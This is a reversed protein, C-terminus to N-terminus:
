RPTTATIAARLLRYQEGAEQLFTALPLTSYQGKPDAQHRRNVDLLQLKAAIAIIEHAILTDNLEKLEM